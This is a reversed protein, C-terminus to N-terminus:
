TIMVDNDDGDDFVTMMMMVPELDLVLFFNGGSGAVAPRRPCANRSSGKRRHDSDGDYNDDNYDDDNDDYNEVDIDRWSM